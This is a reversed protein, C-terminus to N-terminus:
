GQVARATWGRKLLGYFATDSVEGDVIWRERLLGEQSFGLRELTKASAENRPDIDAEVRNLDLQSFGYDLLATLAENMYGKGWATAGLAYGIEARRCTQNISFLTCMGVLESGAALTIGLRLYEMSTSKRDQSIMTHAPAIDTWPPTSWYRMVAPDSFIGFLAAADSEQFPRLLLRDTTLPIGDFRHM